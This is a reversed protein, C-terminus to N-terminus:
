SAELETMDPKYGMAKVDIYMGAAVMCEHLRHTGSWGRWMGNFFAFMCWAIRYISQDSLGAQRAMACIRSTTGSPGAQLPVEQARAEQIWPHDENLTYANIRDYDPLGKYHEGFGQSLSLGKPNKPNMLESIEDLLICKEVMEAGSPSGLLALTKPLSSFQAYRSTALALNQKEEELLKSCLTTLLADIEAIYAPDDAVQKALKKEVDLRAAIKPNSEHILAITLDEYGLYTRDETYEAMEPNQDPRIDPNNTLKNEHSSPLDIWEQLKAKVAAELDERGQVLEPHESELKLLQARVGDWAHVPSVQEASVKRLAVLQESTANSPTVLTGHSDLRRGDRRVGVWVRRQIPASTPQAAYPPSTAMAAREGRAARQGAQDAEAELAADDNLPAGKAAPQNPEVRGQRQQVVHTLEHGLLEQGQEATRTTNGPPM